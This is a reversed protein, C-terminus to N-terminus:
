SAPSVEVPKPKACPWLFCFSTSTAVLCAAAIPSWWILSSQFSVLCVLMGVVLLSFGSVLAGFRRRRLQWFGLLAVVSAMILDATADARHLRPLALAWAAVRVQGSWSSPTIGLVVLKHKGLKKGNEGGADDGLDPTMLDLANVTLPEGSLKPIASGNQSLPVFWDNGLYLGAGRGFRLRQEIFPVHGFLGAAQAAVSPIFQGGLRAVLLDRQQQQDDLIWSLFGLPMQTRLSRDPIGLPTLSFSPSADDTASPLGKVELDGPGPDAISPPNATASFGLVTSPFQVLSDKLENSFQEQGGQWALPMAFAVVEPEHSVLKKLVMLYDIPAPPWASFETKDEERFEVLVVNDSPSLPEKEFRDRANAVLFDLFGAEVEDFRGNERERHFWFFTAGLLCALILARLKM